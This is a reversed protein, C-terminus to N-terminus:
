GQAVNGDSKQAFKATSRLNRADSANTSIACTLGGVDTLGNAQSPQGHQEFDEVGAGEAM